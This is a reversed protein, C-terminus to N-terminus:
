PRRPAVNITGVLDKQDLQPDVMVCFSPTLLLVGYFFQSADRETLWVGSRLLERGHTHAVVAFSLAKTAVPLVHNIEGPYLGQNSVGVTLAWLLVNARVDVSISARGCGTWPLFQLSWHGSIIM